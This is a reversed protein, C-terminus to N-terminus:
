GRMRRRQTALTSQVSFSSIPTPVLVPDGHLIQLEVDDAEVDALFLSFRTNLSAVHASEIAGTPSVNSEATLVMPLYMRGQHERGGLASRKRVLIACNSPPIAATSQGALVTGGEITLEGTGSADVRARYGQYTFDDVMDVGSDLIQVRWALDIADAAAVLDALAVGVTSRFGITCLMEEPDGTLTHRLAIEGYGAPITTM